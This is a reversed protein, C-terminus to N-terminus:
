MFTYLTGKVMFTLCIFNYLKGKAKLQAGPWSPTNPLSPIAGSIKSMPVLHILKKIRIRRVHKGM